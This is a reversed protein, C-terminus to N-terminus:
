ERESLAYDFTRQIGIRTTDLVPIKLVRENLLLPLETSGLIMAQIGEKQVMKRSIEVLKKRTSEVVKGDALEGMVKDHIYEIDETQPPVVEIGYRKFSKQFFDGEMSFRTGYLGVKKLNYKEAEKAVEDIINLLPIPSKEALHPFFMYPTNSAIVAFDAGAKFLSNIADLLISISGETDGSSLPKRFEAMNLNYIIIVPYNREPLVKQSLQIIQRYYELTSEPAMGGLIGIKKM